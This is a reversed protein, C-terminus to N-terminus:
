FSPKVAGAFEPENEIYEKVKDTRLVSELDKVWQKDLDAPKVVVYNTYIVGAEGDASEVALAESASKFGAAIAYNGNIVAFDYDAIASPLLDAVVPVIKIGAKNEVISEETAGTSFADEPLTIWGIQELLLLARTLNSADNPVAVELGEAVEELTKVKGPFIGLPEYHVGFAPALQKDEAVESNYKNLYPQHQFYNANTDGDATAPNFLPYETGEVIVLEHGLAEFDAKVFELLKVHPLPTAGIRVTDALASVAGLSLVLALVLALVKKM